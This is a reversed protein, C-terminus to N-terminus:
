YEFLLNRYPIHANANNAFFLWIALIAFHGVVIFFTIGARKSPAYSDVFAPYFLMPVFYLYLTLRSAVTSSLFYIIVLLLTFWAGMHLLRPDTVYGSMRRRFIVFAFAPIWILAVHILAGPSVISQESTIYADQYFAINDSYFILSTSLLAGGAVFAILALIRFIISIRWSAIVFVFAILASTHFLSAIVIMICRTTQSSQRWRSMVVMVIGVAMAQRIGSM